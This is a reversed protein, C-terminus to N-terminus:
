SVLARGNSLHRNILRKAQSASPCPRALPPMDQPNRLEPFLTLIEDLGARGVSQLAVPGTYLSETLAGNSVVIEHQDFLMHFYEVEAMDDAIEVGDIELLQKAAVLIETTGFMRQAIKSVVLLRHQPSVVLETAPLGQGLAGARVRVPRLRPAAALMDHSLRTSGIWRIPQIGNDKTVVLDGAVLDEIRAVGGPVGILTGRAFCIIPPSVEGGPTFDRVGEMKYNWNSARGASLRISLLPYQFTAYPDGFDDSPTIFTDGNVTQRLTYTETRVYTSGDPRQFTMQVDYHLFSAFNSTKTVGGVTYTAAHVASTSTNHLPYATNSSDTTWSMEVFKLGQDHTATTGVLANREASGNPNPSASTSGLVRYNGIYLWTGTLAM